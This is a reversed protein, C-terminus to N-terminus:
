NKENVKLLVHVESSLKNQDICLQMSNIMPTIMQKWKEKAIKSINRNKELIISISRYLDMMDTGFWWEAVSSFGFHKYLWELSEKSYLHTHGMSLLRPFVQDFISEFFVAPSFLPVSIYLYEVNKNKKLNDLFLYPNQLHELVGILSV